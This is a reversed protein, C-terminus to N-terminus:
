FIGTPIFIVIKQHVNKKIDVGESFETRDYYIIKKNKM